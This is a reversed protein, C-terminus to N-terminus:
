FQFYIFPNSSPASLYLTGWLIASYLAFRLWRRGRLELGELAHMRRRAFWEVLVFVPVFAARNWGMSFGAYRSPDLCETAIKRLILVATAFTDARFFVWTLCIFAFTAGMKLVTVPRPLNREGGPVDAPSGSSRRVGAMIGPLLAAGNLAGWIVFNWSAGHWLGSLVFTLMVNVAGRARSVRSGGLPLYVYDRFWSSLSMHWRRWFESPSQSFYPYAFNRVLRFGLLKASGSAIDAYASFDCYIQFAFCVTAFVLQPGTHAGPALYARDVPDSLNDAIVMKKTVGWLIQRCGDAAIAPDFRRENQFQPLFEIARMIPGAVLHPFFSVFALYEVLGRSAPMKRRYVDIAYSMTQFTYFSIGAPLIVKVSFPHIEFGLARALESFSESFFNFYKFFGLLGFNIICSGVLYARRVKPDESQSIRLTLVYDMLSSFMMLFCFRFDWWGYFIYSVMVLLLNQHTRKKLSWYLAFVTPLFVLYTLTTFTM